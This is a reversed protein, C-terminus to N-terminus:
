LHHVEKNGPGLVPEGGGGSFQYIVSNFLSLHECVYFVFQHNGIPFPPPFSLNPAECHLSFFYALAWLLYWPLPWDLFIGRYAFSLAELCLVGLTFWIDPGTQELTGATMIEANHSTGPLEATWFSHKWHSPQLDSGQDPFWFRVLRM